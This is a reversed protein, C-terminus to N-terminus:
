CGYNWVDASGPPIGAGIAVPCLGDLFLWIPLLASLAGSVVALPPKGKPTSRVAISVNRVCAILLSHQLLM